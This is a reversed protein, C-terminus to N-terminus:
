RGSSLISRAGERAPMALFTNAKVWTESASGVPAGTVFRSQWNDSRPRVLVMWGDGYCASSAVIPRDILAENVVM